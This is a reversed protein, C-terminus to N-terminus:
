SAKYSLVLHSQVIYFYALVVALIHLTRSSFYSCISLTKQLFQSQKNLSKNQTQPSDTELNPDTLSCHQDPWMAPAKHGLATM